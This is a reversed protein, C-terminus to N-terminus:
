KILLFSPDSALQDNAPKHGKPMSSCLTRSFPQCPSIVLGIPTFCVRPAVISPFGVPTPIHKPRGRPWMWSQHRSVHSTHCVHSPVAGVCNLDFSQPPTSSTFCTADDGESQAGFWCVNVRQIYTEIKLLSKLQGLRLQFFSLCQQEMHHVIKPHM